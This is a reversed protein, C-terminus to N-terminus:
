LGKPAKMKRQTAHKIPVREGELTKGHMYNRQWGQKVTEPDGAELKANFNFRAESWSEYDAKLPPNMDLPVLNPEIHELEHHPSPTVFCFVEGAKFEVMGPRTFKWNMTFPFPLWDTEILGDLAAIGDKPANPAGRAWLGWGPSTRMVYGTHFTLVGSGFHSGVVRDVQEPTTEDVAELRIDRLQDGGNYFARFSIPLVLEWGTSNAISLPLCRYAFRNPTEDMWARQPRAPRIEPADHHIQYFTLGCRPNASSTDTEARPPPFADKPADMGRMPCRGRAEEPLTKEEPPDSKTKAAEAM